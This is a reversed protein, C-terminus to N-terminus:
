KIVPINITIGPTISDPNAIKDKNAEYIKPWKSYSDYFKKSIKQLTDDKEVKYEVFSVSETKLESKVEETDDFSPIVIKKSVPQSQKKQVPEKFLEVPEKPKQVDEIIVIDKDAIDGAPRSVEVVFMKRTPKGPRLEDDSPVGYLYGANGSVDQDVRPKDEIFSRVEVNTTKCSSLLFVFSIVLFIQTMNKKM